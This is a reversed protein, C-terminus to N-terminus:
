FLLHDWVVHFPRYHQNGQTGQQGQHQDNGAEDEVYWFDPYNFMVSTSDGPKGTVRAYVAYGADNKPLRLSAGSGDFSKSCWDTVELTSADTKGKPGKRGSEMFIEIPLGDDVRPINIVNGFIQEGTIPDFEADPCQFEAKKGHIILNYHEGSPFGNGFPIGNDDVPKGANASSCLALVFGGLCLNILVKKAM